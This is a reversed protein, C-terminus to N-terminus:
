NLIFATKKRKKVERKDKEIRVCNFTSKVASSPSYKNDINCKILKATM